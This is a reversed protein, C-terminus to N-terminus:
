GRGSRSAGPHLEVGAAAVRAHRHRALRHRPRAERRAARGVRPLQRNVDTIELEGRPSPKLAAAIDLVANDYFYLGTSPTTRSRRRAAERRPEGRPRRRRVGRRRLARPRARSYGFVTAGTSADGGRAASTTPFSHATSSTTASSWRWATAPRRVRPRHHVGAGARRAEAARRLRARMGSQPATASCAGSRRSITRAHHHGPHRPHGGADADYLPYYIM